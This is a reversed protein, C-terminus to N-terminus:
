MEIKKLGATVGSSVYRSTVLVLVRLLRQMVGSLALRFKEDGPPQPLLSFCM